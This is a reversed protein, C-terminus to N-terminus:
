TKDNIIPTSNSRRYSKLGKIRLTALVLPVLSFALPIATILLVLLTVLEVLRNIRGNWCSYGLFAIYFVGLFGLEFLFSGTWSMINDGGPSYWFFGNYSNIIPISAAEYGSFGHPLFGNEKFAQIPVVVHELRVNISADSLIIADISAQNLNEAITGVRTGDFLQSILELQSHVVFGILVIGLAFPLINYSFGYRGSYWVLGFPILFMIGMSSKALVVICFINIVILFCSIRTPKYNESILILWSSFILYVAFFTPEPALSTVGREATTRLASAWSTFEPSYSELVGVAIWLYNVRRIFAIPISYRKAFDYYFILVVPITIYNVSARVLQYASANLQAAAVCLFIASMFAVSMYARPVFMCRGFMLIYAVSFLLPFPQSDLANTGWSAWPTLCFFLALLGFHYRVEKSTKKNM